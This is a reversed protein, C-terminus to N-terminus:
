KKMVRAIEAYKIILAQGDAKNIIYVNDSDAYISYGAAELGADWTESFSDLVANLLVEALKDEKQIVDTIEKDQMNQLKKNIRGEVRRYGTEHLLMELHECAFACLEDEISPELLFSGGTNKWTDGIAIIVPAVMGEPSLSRFLM